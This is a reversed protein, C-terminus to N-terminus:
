VSFHSKSRFFQNRNEHKVRCFFVKQLKMNKPRLRMVITLIDICSKKM